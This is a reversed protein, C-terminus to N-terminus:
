SKLKKKNKYGKVFKYITSGTFALVWIAIVGIGIYANYISLGVALFFVILVTTILTALYHMDLAANYWNLAKSFINQKMSKLNLKIEKPSTMMGGFYPSLKYGWIVKNDRLIYSFEFKDYTSVRNIVDILVTITNNKLSMKVVFEEEPSVLIKTSDISRRSRYYTYIFLEIKDGVPKWGIRYSHKHHHGISLGILKNVHGPMNDPNEYLCSKDFMVKYHISPNSSLLYVGKPINPKFQHEDKKVILTQM